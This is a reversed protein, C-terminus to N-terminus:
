ASRRLKGEVEAWRQTHRDDFLVPQFGLKRYVGIAALRWDDTHLVVQQFGHDHFWHLTALTVLMGLGRGRQQPAVGVMHVYGTEPALAPKVWATATGQPVGGVTAIFCGDARFEPREVLEARCRKATWDQGVCENMIRAWAAEDGPEYARLGCGSPVVLPPLGDLHPLLMELQRPSESADSLM